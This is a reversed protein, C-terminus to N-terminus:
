GMRAFNETIYNIVDFNLLPEGGYWMINIKSLGQKKIYEVIQNATEINMHMKPIGNEHCYFCRANCDTTTLIWFKEIAKNRNRNSEAKYVLQRLAKNKKAFEYDNFDDPVLFWKEILQKRITGNNIDNKIFVLECTLVNYLLLGEKYSRRLVYSFWRHTSDKVNQKGIISSIIPDQRSIELM